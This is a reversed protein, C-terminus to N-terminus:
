RRAFVVPRPARAARSALAAAAAVLAEPDSMVRHAEIAFVSNADDHFARLSVYTGEDAYRFLADVFRAIQGRDAQLPADTNV